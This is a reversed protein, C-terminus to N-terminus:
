ELGKIRERVGCHATPQLEPTLSQNCNMVEGSSAVVFSCVVGKFYGLVNM